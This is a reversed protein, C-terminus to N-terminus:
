YSSLDDTTLDNFPDFVYMGFPNFPITDEQEVYVTLNTNLVINPESPSLGLISDIDKAKPIIEAKSNINEKLPIVSLLLTIRKLNIFNLGNNIFTVIYKYYLDTIVGVIGKIKM